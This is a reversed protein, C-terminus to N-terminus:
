SFLLIGNPEKGVEINDIVKNDKIDFVTIMNTFMNSIFLINDGNWCLKNPMGKLQTKSLLNNRKIDMRFLYGDEMNTIFIIESGNIKLMNSFIGKLNGINKEKHTELDIVSLNSRDLVRSDVNSLIYMKNSDMIMKAPNDTLRIIDRGEGNLDIVDIGYGNGNAVYIKKNKRDIELDVPNEGVQINEALVFDKEDIVSISNSDSNIIYFQQEFYKICSPYKGVSIIDVIKRTKSDIKVVSNDYVNTCYIYEKGDYELDYPGILYNHFKINDNGHNATDKLDFTKSRGGHFLDIFTLSDDGTNAVILKEFVKLM